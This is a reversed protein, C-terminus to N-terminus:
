LQGQTAAKISFWTEQAARLFEDTLPLGSSSPIIADVWCHPCVATAGRKDTWRKIETPSFVRLCHYCGCQNSEVLSQKNNRSVDQLKEIRPDIPM